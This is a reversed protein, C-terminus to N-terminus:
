RGSSSSCLRCRPRMRRALRWRSMSTPPFPAFVAIAVVTTVLISILLAARVRMAMLALTLFTTAVLNRQRAELSEEEAYTKAFEDDLELLERM